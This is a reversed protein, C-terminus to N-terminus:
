LYRLLLNLLQMIMFLLLLMKISFGGTSITSLAWTIADFWNMGFFKLLMACVVNLLIYVIIIDNAIYSIKPLFKEETDSNEKSFLQMGGTGLFPSLAVAFIVIGIGGLGNLMSRWLLISKPQSEIDNLITSSTTTIGAAAEFIANHLQNTDANFLFPLACIVPTIFWLCVTILYGQLISIKRISEYNGLFLAGGLFIAILGSQVFGYDPYGSYYYLAFAPIMMILGLILMIFGNIMFIPRWM